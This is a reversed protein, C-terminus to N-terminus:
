RVEWKSCYHYVNEEDKGDYRYQNKILLWEPNLACYVPRIEYVVDTRHEQKKDWPYLVVSKCKLCDM